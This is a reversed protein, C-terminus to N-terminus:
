PIRIRYLRAPIIPFQPDAFRMSSGSFTNTALPQWDRLDSSAEIVVTQQSEGLITFSCSAGDAPKTLSSPTIEPRVVTPVGGYRNPIATSTGPRVYVNAFSPLGSFDRDLKPPKGNLLIASLQTCGEFARSDIDTVSSPISVVSLAKCNQFADGGIQTLSSPLSLEALSTCGDFAGYDIETITNPLELRTLAACNAFTNRAISGLEGRISVSVLSRCGSFADDGVGQVSTPLTINALRSCDEFAGSGISEIGCGDWLFDPFHNLQHNYVQWM